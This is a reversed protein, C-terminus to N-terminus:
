SQHSLISAVAKQGPHTAAVPMEASFEDVGPLQSMWKGTGKAGAIDLVTGGFLRGLGRLVSANGRTTEILYVGCSAAIEM